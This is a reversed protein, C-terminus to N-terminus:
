IPSSCKATSPPEKSLMAIAFDLAMKRSYVAESSMWNTAAAIRLVKNGVIWHQMRPNSQSRGMKSICLTLDPRTCVQAYMISGVLSAYPKNRMEDEEEKNKPCHEKKLDGKALPVKLKQSKHPEVLEWVQNNKMSELENLM